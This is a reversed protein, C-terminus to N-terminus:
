GLLYVFIFLFSVFDTAKPTTISAIAAHVPLVDLESFVTQLDSSNTM